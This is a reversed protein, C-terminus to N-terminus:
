LIKYIAWRKRKEWFGICNTRRVNKKEMRERKLNLFLFFTFNEKRISQTGFMNYSNIVGTLCVRKKENKHM